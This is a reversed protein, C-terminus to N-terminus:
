GSHLAVIAADSECTAFDVAQVVCRRGFGLAEYEIREM